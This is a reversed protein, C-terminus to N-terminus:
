EEIAGGLARLHQRFSYDPNKKRQDLYVDFQFQQSLTEGELLRAVQRRETAHIARATQLVDEVQALPVFMVGDMDGFVVDDRTVIYEGIHAETLADAPRELLTTPGPSYSGYSFVPFGISILEATDRHRGWLVIGAVGRTRAELVTLDGICGQHNRGADDIVLVDSSEAQVFAELFIDVSGYHRVPLVRGAVRMTPTIAAIGAPATRLAIDLRVCADALLSTSLGTFAARIHDNQM